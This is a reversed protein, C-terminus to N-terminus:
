RKEAKNGRRYLQLAESSKKEIQQETRRILDVKALELLPEPSTGLADALQCILEAAPIEDKTEVRSLYGPSKGLLEALSRITLGKAMRLEFIRKGFEGM